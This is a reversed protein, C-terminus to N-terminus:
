SKLAEFLSPSLFGLSSHSRERNHFIEIYDFIAATAESRSSFHTRYILELKLSSWFSEMAANDYCNGKRSM